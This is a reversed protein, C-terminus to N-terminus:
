ARPRLNEPDWPADALVRASRRDGLILVEPATGPAAPDPAISAFALSRGVAPGHGGSTTLGALRDGAYVPASGLCDAGEADVDLLALKIRPGQAQRRLTAARGLFDRGDPWLFREMSAEIIDVEATPESGWGRYGKELRLLNIAMTGFLALGHPAGAAELADFVAPMGARPIHLEWGLEGVYTMRLLRVGAVSAVTAERATLWPCAANSLGADTCAAPVDRARPGALVLRGFDETVDTATVRDGPMIRWRLRDLDHLQAAAGSLVFFRDAALRTVTIEAEVFGGENLRDHLASLRLDRGAAHQEGPRHCCYMHHCDAIAVETACADSAWAGFRRPDFERMSIEAQGHVIWQALYRGAGGGQATGISAACHM